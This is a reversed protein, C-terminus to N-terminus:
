PEQYYVLHAIAPSAGFVALSTLNALKFVVGIGGDPAYGGSNLTASSNITWRVAGGEARIEVENTGTPLTCAQTAGNMTISQEGLYTRGAGTVEEAYSGDTLPVFRKEFYNGSKAM